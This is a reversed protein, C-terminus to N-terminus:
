HQRSDRFGVMNQYRRLYIRKYLSDLWLPSTLFGTIGGISLLIYSATNSVFYAILNEFGIPLILILVMWLLTMVVNNETNGVTLKKNMPTCYNTFTATQMTVPLCFGIVVLYYSIWQGFTITETVVAPFMLLLPIIEMLCYFFYKGKLLDILLQKHVMLGDMYNGEISLTHLLPTTLMYFSYYCIFSNGRDGYVDPSFTSILSFLITAFLLMIMQSRVIKNRLTSKIEMKIFEGTIGFRNFLNFDMRFRFKIVSPSEKGITETYIAASQIKRNLQFLVVIGLIVLLYTWLYGKIWGEGFYMFFYRVCDIDPLFVFLLPIGYILIPLLMWLIHKMLLTRILIYFYSNCVIMLWWGFLYGICGAMGYFPFVAKIAFPILLAMWLLNAPIFFMRILFCDTIMRQPVPLLLFPRIKVSPTEQATFRFLIDFILLFFLGENFLNYSEMGPRTSQLIDKLMIGIFFLYGIMFLYMFIMLVKMAMKRYFMPNRKDELKTLNAIEKYLQCYTAITKM